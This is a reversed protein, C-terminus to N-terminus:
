PKRKRERPGAGGRNVPGIFTEAHVTMAATPPAGLAVDKEVDHRFDTLDDDGLGAERMAVVTSAATDAPVGRAILESLVGMAVVASERARQRHLRRLAEPDAGARLANAAAVVEADSADPGLAARAKALDDALSRVVAIIRDSAARKSAGELAKDVLPEVPLRRARAQDVIAVVATRTSADLRAALRSERADNQAHLLRPTGLLLALGSSFALLRRM